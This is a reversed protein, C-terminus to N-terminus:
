CPLAKSREAVDGSVAISAYHVPYFCKKLNIVKILCMEKEKRSFGKNESIM